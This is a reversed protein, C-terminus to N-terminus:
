PEALWYEIVSVASGSETRTGDSVLPAFGTFPETCTLGVTARGPTFSNLDPRVYAFTVMNVTGRCVQSAAAKAATEADGENSLSAARAAADAAQQARSGHREVNISYVALLAILVMVPLIIALETSLLGRDSGNRRGLARSLFRAKM